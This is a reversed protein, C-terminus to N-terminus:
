SSSIIQKLYMFFNIFFLDLFHKMDGAIYGSVMFVAVLSKTYRRLSNYAESFDGFDISTLVLSRTLSSKRTLIYRLFTLRAGAIWVDTM